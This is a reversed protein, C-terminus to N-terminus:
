VIFLGTIFAGTMWDNLGGRTSAPEGPARPPKTRYLTDRATDQSESRGRSTPDTRRVGPPVHRVHAPRRAGNVRRACMSDYFIREGRSLYEMIRPRMKTKGRRRHFQNHKFKNTM